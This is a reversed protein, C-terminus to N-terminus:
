LCTQFTQLKFIQVGSASTACKNESMGTWIHLEGSNSDSKSNTM